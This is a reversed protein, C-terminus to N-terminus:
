KPSNFFLKIAEVRSRLSRGVNHLLVQCSGVGGVGADVGALVDVLEDVSEVVFRNM